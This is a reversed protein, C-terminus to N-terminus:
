IIKIFSGLDIVIYDKKDPNYIAELRDTIDFGESKFLCYIYDLFGPLSNKCDFPGFSEVYEGEVYDM